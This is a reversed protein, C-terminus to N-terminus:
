SKQAAPCGIAVNRRRSAPVTSGNSSCCTAACISTISSVSAAPASPNPSDIARVGGNTATLIRLVPPTM